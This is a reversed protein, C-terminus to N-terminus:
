LDQKKEVPPSAPQAPTTAAPQTAPVPKFGQEKMMERLKEIERKRRFDLYQRVDEDLDSPRLFITMGNDPLLIMGMAREQQAAAAAGAPLANQNTIYVGKANVTYGLGTLGSISELVDRVTYNDLMLTIRRFEPAVRQIAGPEISFELGSQQALETLVQAVDANNYRATISKTLLNRVQVEKPVVVISDAWPYWTLATDKTLSELAEAMTANRPVAVLQDGKVDGPRFEVAFPSKAAELAKDVENVVDRITPSPNKLNLPKSSLWDLAQLEQVTSRRGLRTLAAMPRLEVAQERLVTELGLKHAIANLADRLSQNEITATVKTQQGWPLLDWVKRDAEIRVGTERAIGSMATPLETNITLKVPKDLAENILASSDQATAPVSLCLLALLTTVLSLRRMPCEM